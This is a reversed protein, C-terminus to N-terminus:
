INRKNGIHTTITKDGFKFNQKGCKGHPCHCCKYYVNYWVWSVNCHIIATEFEFDIKFDDCIFINRYSSM